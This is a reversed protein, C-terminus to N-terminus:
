RIERRLLCHFTADLRHDDADGIVAAENSIVPNRRNDTREFSAEVNSRSQM